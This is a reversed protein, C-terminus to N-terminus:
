PAGQRLTETETVPLLVFYHRSIAESLSAVQSEIRRLRPSLQEAGVPSDQRAILDAVIMRADSIASDLALALPADDREELVALVKRAQLLQFILGRPNGDDAVVLDVVPPLQLATLYRSRYTIASDCLELALHLGAEIRDQPLDLANALQLAIAQAREVRRGLELFLHGGGRVMNEAAFGAVTAAFTLVRGEFDRLQEVASAHRAPRLAKRAQILGRLGQTMATSMDGSLRDQLLDTLTQVRDILWALTGRDHSAARLIMEALMDPSSHPGADPSILGAENLCKVLVALKPMDRPLLAARAIRKLFVRTLRAANELRELYRGLWFFNDAVRSPLDGATRRIPLAGLPTSDPGVITNQEDILVWVDKSLEDYPLRGAAADDSSLVTGLGGQFAHWARGDFIMFLRVVVSRPELTEGEGVCPAYSPLVPKLAVFEWPRDSIRQALRERAAVSLSAARIPEGAGDIASRILWSPLDALAQTRSAPDGLWVSPLSDLLLDEGLMRRAVSRLFPALGPAEALAAGPANLVQIAGHRAANLLGPIGAAGNGPLELPDITRGDQRRLLVHVPQLGRLTKLFLAGDRMTLDGDEVLACSLERALMVDEFWCPDSHGPTLLAVGPNGASPPALRQLVDQWVDFFPGLQSVELTHFLEPLVRGMMRRNELAYALGSPEAVHDNVVCWRGNPQRLLDAAYLHIQPPPEGHGGTRCPRLFRPSSLVVAAPILGEAILNQPGYLDSLIAEMLRARQALGDTLESFETETLLLPIPDCRWARPDSSPLLAAVGDEAFARDLDEKRERLAATGLGLLTGLMRRWAPRLRGAEDLMEDRAGSGQPAPDLM